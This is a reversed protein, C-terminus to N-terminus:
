GRLFFGLPVLEAIQREARSLPYANPAAERQHFKLDYELRQERVEAELERGSV